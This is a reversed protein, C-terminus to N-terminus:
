KKLMKKYEKNKKTNEKIEEGSLFSYYNPGKQIRSLVSEYEDVLENSHRILPFVKNKNEEDKRLMEFKYKMINQDLDVLERTFDLVRRAAANKEKRFARKAIGLEIYSYEDDRCAGDWTDHYELERDQLHQINKDNKITINRLKNKVEKSYDDKDELIFKDIDKLSSKIVPELLSLSMLMDDTTKNQKYGSSDKFHPIFRYKGIENTLEYYQELLIITGMNNLEFDNSSLHEKIYNYGDIIREEKTEDFVTVNLNKFFNNKKYYDFYDELTDENLIYSFPQLNYGDTFLDRYFTIANIKRKIQRELEPQRM